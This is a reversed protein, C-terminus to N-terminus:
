IETGASAKRHGQPLELEGIRGRRPRRARQKPEFAEKEGKLRAIDTKAKAIRELYDTMTRRVLKHWVILPRVSSENM